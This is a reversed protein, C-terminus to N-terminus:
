HSPQEAFDERTLIEFSAYRDFDHVTVGMARVPHSHPKYSKSAEPVAVNAPKEAPLTALPVPFSPVSKACQLVSEYSSRDLKEYPTFFYAHSQEFAESRQLSAELADYYEASWTTTPSVGTSARGLIRNIDDDDEEFVADQDKLQKPAGDRNVLLATQWRVLVSYASGSPLAFDIEEPAHPYTAVRRIDHTNLSLPAARIKPWKSLPHLYHSPDTAKADTLLEDWGNTKSAAQKAIALEEGLSHRLTQLLQKVQHLKQTAPDDDM